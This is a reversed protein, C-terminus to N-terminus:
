GDTEARLPRSLLGEIIQDVTAEGALLAAVGYAIPM